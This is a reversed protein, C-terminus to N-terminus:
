FPFFAFLGQTQTTNRWECLVSSIQENLYNDCFGGTKGDFKDSQLKDTQSTAWFLVAKTNAKLSGHTSLTVVLAAVLLNNM